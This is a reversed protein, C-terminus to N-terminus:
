ARRRRRVQKLQRTHLYDLVTVTAGSALNQGGPAEMNFPVAGALVSFSKVNDGYTKLLNKTTTPLTGQGIAAPDGSTPFAGLRIYKRLYIKRGTTTNRGTDFNVVGCLEPWLGGGSAMTGNGTLDKILITENEAPTGGTEWVRATKFTIHSAHVLKEEQVLKDVIASVDGPTVSGLAGTDGHYVNSFLERNGKWSVDKNIAIGLRTM